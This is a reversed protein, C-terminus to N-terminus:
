KNASRALAKSVAAHSVGLARAVETVSLGLEAVARRCVLARAYAAARTRLGRRVEDAPIGLGDCVGRLLADFPTEAAADPRELWARLRSRATEENPAFLELTERVSEFPHPSRRGMLAGVGGWPYRELADVSRVIGAALPNRLVYRIVVLLDTEDGVPRSGYRGQLVYGRRAARGNFRMAYGTLIRHMLAGLRREGTKVVAHVHNSMLTWGLCHAGSAPLVVSFRAVFDRRDDADLFLDSGAVAHTWVHHVM